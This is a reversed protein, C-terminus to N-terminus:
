KVPLFGKQYELPTQSTILKFFKHFSSFNQFGSEFCVQKISMKNEILLKCAHGIRVETIFQSYTKKTRLKFYRCFYNDSISAADAVEKISFKRNFNNFTFDYISNIRDNETEKIDNIFAISSLIKAESDEILLLAEILLIIRKTGEVELMKQMISQIEHKHTGHIILGRKAKEFLSVLVKNEPLMLFDEGWFDDCFHIVRIDTLDPSEDKLYNRDFRWYHPLNSGIMVIDGPLFNNVSDGIYHTGSGDLVHILEIEPHYHWCNNMMPVRDRRISFSCTPQNNFKLLQPKM